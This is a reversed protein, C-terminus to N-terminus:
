CHCNKRCLWSTELRRVIMELIKLDRCSFKMRGGQRLRGNRKLYLLLAICASIFGSLSSSSINVPISRDVAFCDYVTSFVPFWQSVTASIHPGLDEVSPEVSIFPASYVVSQLHYQVTHVTHPSVTYSAAWGRYHMLFEESGVSELRM